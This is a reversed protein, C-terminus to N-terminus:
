LLMSTEGRRTVLYNYASSLIVGYMFMGVFVGYVGSDIYLEGVMTPNLGGGAYELGIAEKLVLGFTPQYGPLLTSFTQIFLFGSDFDILDPIYEYVYLLGSVYSSINYFVYFAFQLILKDGAMSSLYNIFLIDSSMYMRYFGFGFLLIGMSS